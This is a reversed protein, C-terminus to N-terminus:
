TAAGWFFSQGYWLCSLGSRGRIRIKLASFDKPPFNIKKVIEFNIKKPDTKVNEIFIDFM